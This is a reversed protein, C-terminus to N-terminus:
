RILRHSRHFSRRLRMHRMRNRSRNMLREQQRSNHRAERTELVTPVAKIDALAENKKIAPDLSQQHVKEEITQSIAISTTFVLLTLSFLLKKM